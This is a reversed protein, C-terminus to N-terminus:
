MTKKKKVEFNEGLGQLIRWHFSLTIVVSILDLNTKQKAKQLSEFKIKEMFHSM